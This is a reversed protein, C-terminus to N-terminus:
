CVRWLSRGEYGKDNSQSVYKVNLINGDDDQVEWANGTLPGRNGVVHTFSDGSDVLIQDGIEPGREFETLGLEELNYGMMTALRQWDELRSMAPLTYLDELMQMTMKLSTNESPKGVLENLDHAIAQAKDYPLYRNILGVIKMAEVPTSPM